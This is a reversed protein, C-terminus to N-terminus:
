FLETKYYVGGTTGHPFLDVVQSNTIYIRHVKRCTKTHLYWNITWWVVTVTVFQVSGTTLVQLPSCLVLIDLHLQLHLRPHLIDVIRNTIFIDSVKGAEQVM